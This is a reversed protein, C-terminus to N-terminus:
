LQGRSAAGDHARRQPRQPGLEERAYTSAWASPEVGTPTWGRQTAESMLFGVWCGLDLLRGAARAGRAPRPDRRATARQGEVEDVYEPDAADGYVEGLIVDSPMQILQMHGCTDCRGIDSLARGYDKTNPAFDSGDVRAAVRM